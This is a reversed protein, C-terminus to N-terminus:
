QQYIEQRADGVIMEGKRPANKAQGQQSALYESHSIDLLCQKKLLLTQNFINSTNNHLAHSTECSFSITKNIDSSNMLM